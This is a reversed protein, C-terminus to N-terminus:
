NISNVLNLNPIIISKFDLNRITTVIIYRIVIINIVKIIIAIHAIFNDVLIILFYDM